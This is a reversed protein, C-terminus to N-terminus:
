IIIGRRPEMKCASVQWIGPKASFGIHLRDHCFNCYQSGDSSVLDPEFVALNKLVLSLGSGFRCNKLVLGLSDLAHIYGLVLWGGLQLLQLLPQKNRQDKETSTEVSCFVHQPCMKGHLLM